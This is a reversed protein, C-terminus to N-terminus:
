ANSSNERSGDRQATLSITGNAWAAPIIKDVNGWNDHIKFFRQGEATELFGHAVVWHNNYTSGFIKLLGIMVPEGALIRKTVRQWAGLTTIRARYPVQYRRFYHNLGVAIQLPVTPLDLPQLLPRLSNILIDPAFQQPKRIEASLCAADLNDQWYALLVSSAYTGCLFGSPTKWTRYNEFSNLEIWQNIPYTM